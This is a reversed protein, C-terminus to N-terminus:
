ERRRRGGLVAPWLNLSIMKRKIMKEATKSIVPLMNLSIMKKKIMKEATKSIM